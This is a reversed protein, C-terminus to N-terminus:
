QSIKRYTHLPEATGDAKLDYILSDRMILRASVELMSVNEGPIQTLEPFMENMSCTVGKTGPDMVLFSDQEIHWTGCALLFRTTGNVTKETKFLMVSDERMTLTIVNGDWHTTNQWTGVPDFEPHRPNCAAITLVFSIACYSIAKSVSPRQM